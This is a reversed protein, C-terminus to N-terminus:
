WVKQQVDADMAASEKLNKDLAKLDMTSYDKAHMM